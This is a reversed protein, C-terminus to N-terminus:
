NTIDLEKKSLGCRYCKDTFDMIKSKQMYGLPNYVEEGYGVPAIFKHGFLVCKLLKKM